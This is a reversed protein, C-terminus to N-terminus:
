QVLRRNGLRHWSFAAICASLFLCLEPTEMIMKRVFPGSDLPLVLLLVLFWFPASQVIFAAQAPFLRPLLGLNFAMLAIGVLALFQLATLPESRDRLMAAVVLCIGLCTWAAFRRTRRLHDPLMWAFSTELTVQEWYAVVFGALLPVVMWLLVGGNALRVDRNLWVLMSVMGFVLLALGSAAVGHHYKRLQHVFGRM